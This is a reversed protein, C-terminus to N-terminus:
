MSLHISNIMSFKMDKSIIGTCNSNTSNRGYGLKCSCIATGNNPDTACDETINNCPSNIALFFSLLYQRYDLSKVVFHLDMGCTDILQVCLPLQYGVNCTCSQNVNTANPNCTGHVCQCSENCGYGFNPGLCEEFTCVCVFLFSINFNDIISRVSVNNEMM